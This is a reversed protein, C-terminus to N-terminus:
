DSGAEYDYDVLGTDLRDPDFTWYQRIEDILGGAFRYHESGRFTFARTSAPDTGTMWWEIAASAGDAATVCSDLGWVAGQWRERVRVWQRGIRAAGRFPKVNTDWIVADATFHSAIEDASAHSCATFYATIREEPGM